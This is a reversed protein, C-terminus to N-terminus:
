ATTYQKMPLWSGTDLLDVQLIGHTQERPPSPQLGVHVREGDVVPSRRGLYKRRLHCSSWGRAEELMCGSNINYVIIDCRVDLFFLAYFVAVYM